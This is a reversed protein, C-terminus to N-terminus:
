IQGTFPLLPNIALNSNDVTTIWKRIDKDLHQDKSPFKPM